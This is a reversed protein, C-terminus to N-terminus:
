SNTLKIVDSCCDSSTISLRWPQLDPAFQTLSKVLLDPPNNKHIVQEPNINFIEVINLVSDGVSTKVLINLVIHAFVHDNFKKQLNVTAIPYSIIHTNICLSNPLSIIDNALAPSSFAANKNYKKM